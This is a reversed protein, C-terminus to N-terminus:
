SELNIAKNYADSFMLIWADWDQDISQHVKSWSGKKLEDILPNEWKSIFEKFQKCLQGKRADYQLFGHFHFLKHKRKAVSYM